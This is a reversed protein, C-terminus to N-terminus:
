SIHVDLYGTRHIQMVFNFGLIRYHRARSDLLHDLQFVPYTTERESTRENLKM